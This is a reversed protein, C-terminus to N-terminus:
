GEDLWLIYIHIQPNKRMSQERFGPVVIAIGAKHEANYSKMLSIHGIWLYSVFWTYM